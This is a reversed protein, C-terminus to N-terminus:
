GCEALELLTLARMLAHWLTEAMERVADRVVVRVVTVWTNEYVVRIVNLWVEQVMRDMLLPRVDQVM